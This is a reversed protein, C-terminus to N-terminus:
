CGGCFRMWTITWLVSFGLETLTCHVEKTCRVEKIQDDDCLSIELM